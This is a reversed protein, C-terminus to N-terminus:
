CGRVEIRSQGGSQRQVRIQVGIRETMEQVHSIVGVKRGQSQLHDLADMAVRLTDADLSGFGEDIFLSEVRVRNSSLSALGLALALSVLFSEGGSLSHVSRREDGMDQDIVMLALTEPVRELRYRRSLSALHHNAYGLLVDLTLQQAYNRFRRGDASGILDNLKRWIETKVQQGAIKEQLAATTQKRDDDRRLDLAAEHHRSMAIKLTNSIQQQTAQVVELADSGARQREHDQRQSQRERLTIEAKQVSDTLMQLRGREQKLWDGDHVLLARLQMVDLNKDMLRANFDALWHNFATDAQTATKQRDALLQTASKLETAAQIDAQAAQQTTQNQQQLLAHANNTAQDFATEVEVVSRGNLLNKRQQHKEQLHRDAIAFEEATRQRQAVKEAVTATLGNLEVEIRGLSIQRSELEKSKVSWQASQQQYKWYFADPDSKWVPQWDTDPFAPNLAKLRDDLQQAAETQRVTATQLTSIAQDFTTQTATAADRITSHQQQAKNRDQQAKDRAKIAERQRNEEKLMADLQERVHQNQATFWGSYDAIAIATLETALPQANWRVTNKAIAALLPEREKDIAALRQRSSDLITQHIAKQEVLTDRAKRSQDVETNLSALLTRSPADGASYPHETAGCVPCPSGSELTNRLTEVNKACATEAIKLSKEAQELRAVTVPQEAHLQKLATEAQAIKVQVADTETKLEQQRTLAHALETWLKEAEAVRDRRSETTARRLVLADGDFGAVAQIATQLQAEAAQFTAEAKTLAIGAQDRAQQKQQEDQWCATIKREIDRLGTQATAAENFLVEWGPWNEALGRLAKNGTLWDQATQLAQATQNREAQKGALAHQARTEADRADNRIKLAAAHAPALTNIEAELRKALELDPGAARKAQEADAVQQQAKALADDAQRRLQRASELKREADSVAQRTQEVDGAARDLEVLLPRANQVAEVQALYATRPAASDQAARTQQVLEIAQQEAQKLKEWTQHWQLQRDLETKRQELQAAEAQAVILGQELQARDAAALPQQGVCQDILAQLAQQEAKAREYARMSLGTYVDLGTLTELLEARDNDNAKLFASFENQALLAARTFQTFSLGLRERIAQQVESKVGGIRQEDALTQLAMETHQLKGGAKSRARRVSWRARYAIGDNGIFDVEALAEGAGRRLLNRPDQPTITDDGVDPLSVGKVAARTLRPTEDYLALCLADLLTSKGSGTPGAIAFLGASALPEQQFDIVFEGALSALNKGRIALIKM